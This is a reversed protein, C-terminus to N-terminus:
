RTAIYLVILLLPAIIDYWFIYGANGPAFNRDRVMSRIHGLAAGLMFVSFVIITALTYDRDFSSATVGLIGWGVNALGVEWQFPSPAWGISEAIPAPIFLHGIGLIIGNMGILWFVGVGLATQKWDDVGGALQIVLAVVFGAAPVYPTLSLLRSWINPHGPAAETPM